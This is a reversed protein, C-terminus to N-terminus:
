ERYTGAAGRLWPHAMLERVTARVTPVYNLCRDLLLDQVEMSCADLADGSDMSAYLLPTSRPCGTLLESLIIGLTWVDTPAAHYWRGSLIEPAAYNLTGRFQSLHFMPIANNDNTDNSENIGHIDNTEDIANNCNVGRTLVASGFDVLKVRLHRDILFNELKLDCHAIGEAHLAGVAGVMQAFLHRAIVEPIPGAHWELFDYVSNGRGRQHDWM